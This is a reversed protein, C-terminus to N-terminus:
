RRRLQELPPLFPWTAGPPSWKRDLYDFAATQVQRWVECDRAWQRLHLNTQYGAVVVLAVAALAAVPASRKHGALRALAAGIGLAVFVPSAYLYWSEVVPGRNLWVPLALMVAASVVSWVAIRWPAIALILAAVIAGTLVYPGSHVPAFVHGLAYTSRALVPAQRNLSLLYPNVNSAAFGFHFYVLTGYACWVAVFALLPKWRMPRDAVGLELLVLPVIFVFATEKSLLTLAFFFLAAPYAWRRGQQRWLLWCLLTALIGTTMTGDSRGTVWATAMWGAPWLAFLAAAATAAYRKRLLLSAVGAILVVNVLHVILNTLHWGAPNRHFMASNVLWSLHTPVRVWEGGHLYRGVLLDPTRLYLEAKRVVGFDETRAFSLRLTPAYLAATIVLILIVPAASWLKTRV